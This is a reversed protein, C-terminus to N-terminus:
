FLYCVVSRQPKGRYSLRPWLEWSKSTFPIRNVTNRNLLKVPSPVPPSRLWVPSRRNNIADTFALEESTNASFPALNIPKQPPQSQSLLEQVQQEQWLGYYSFTKFHKNILEQLLISRIRRLHGTRM